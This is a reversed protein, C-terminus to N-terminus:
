EFLIICNRFQFYIRTSSHIFFTMSFFKFNNTGISHQLIAKSNVYIPINEKKCRLSWETDVYDIFLIEDM